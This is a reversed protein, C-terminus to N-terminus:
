IHQYVLTNLSIAILIIITHWTFLLKLNQHLQISTGPLFKNWAVKYM